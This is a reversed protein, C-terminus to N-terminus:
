FRSFKPPIKMLMMLNFNDECLSSSSRPKLKEQTRRGRACMALETGEQKLDGATVVTRLIEEDFSM